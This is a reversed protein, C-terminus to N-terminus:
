PTGALPDFWLPSESQPLYVLKPNDGKDILTSLLAIYETGEYITQLKSTPNILFHQRYERGDASVFRFNEQSLPARGNPASLAKVRLWVIFYEQNKQPTINYKSMDKVLKLAPQGRKMDTLEFEFSAYGSYASGQYTASINMGAPSERTFVPKNLEQSQVMLNLDVKPLLSLLPNNQDISTLGQFVGFVDVQDGSLLLYEENGPTYDAYFVLGPNNGLSILYSFANDGPLVQLILGSFRIKDGIKGEPARAYGEGDLVDLYGDLDPLQNLRIQADTKMRLSLLEEQSMQTLDPAQASVCLPLLVLLLLLLKKM